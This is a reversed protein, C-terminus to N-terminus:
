LKRGNKPASSTQEMKQVTAAFMSNMNGTAVRMSIEMDDKEDFDYTDSDWGLRKFKEMCRKFELINKSIIDMLAEPATSTNSVPTSKSLRKHKAQRYQCAYMIQRAMSVQQRALIEGVLKEM